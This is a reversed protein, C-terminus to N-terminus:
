KLKGLAQELDAILDDPDELGIQLRVLPGEARWPAATRQIQPDCHIALSEFGGWSFGCGFLELADIFAEVKAQPVPKLILGFLGASNYFDRQFLAHDPHSELAPHIMRAVEARGELWRAVQLGAEGHWKLRAALSRLGRLATWAADPSVSEGSIRIINEVKSALAQDTFSMAGAFIDSGGSVYKTLAQCAIDAGLALPKSLLGASWTDDIMTVVGRSRAASAIAPVDQIEFTLSGPSEMAILATNARILGTIGAGIRPDYYEVEVGREAVFRSAFDRTPGYISDTVLVHSGPVALARFPATCASLGSSTILTRAAGQLASLTEALADHVSVGMRGYRRGKGYLQGSEAYVFTSAREVPPNVPGDGAPRGTHALKTADSIKVPPRAV